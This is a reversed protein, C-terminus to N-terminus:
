PRTGAIQAMLGLHDTGAVPLRHVSTATLFHNLLIHDIPLLPPLARNAPYTPLWGAGVIDTVSELGDRRLAQLPGHDDVANLDGALVLPQGLNAEAVKRLQEHERHWLDSGCYPNCPHAAIVRVPGLEPVQVTSILHQFRFPQLSETQSLPFRSYLKTGNAHVDVEGTSYPFRESLGYPLLRDIGEKTAELLVVVDAHEAQQMVQGANARGNKLNLSMVTFSGTTPLRHDPVFLPALWGVHCALLLATAGTAAGLVPRRRGRVLAVVWCGFSVLYALVGYSIFAAVLAIADSTPPFLRLCTSVLGALGFLVATAVWFSQFPRAPSFSDWGALSASRGPWSGRVGPGGGPGASGQHRRTSPRAAQDGGTTTM